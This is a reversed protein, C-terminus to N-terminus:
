QGQGTIYNIIGGAIGEAAKQRFEETMLLKLDNKNTMFAVEVLASPMRTERTVVLGPREVIGRDPLGLSQVVAKQIAMALAKKEPAPYYLTETGSTDPKESANNHISVFLDAGVENAIGARTYLNVFIDKDRTMLVKAGGDELLKKLRLAIDLNLDKEQVGGAGAGPDSGGHGPDVVIIKNQLPSKYIILEIRSSPPATLLQYGTFRNLNIVVQLNYNKLDKVRSLEIYDIVGDYVDIKDNKLLSQDVAVGPIVIRLQKKAVDEKIEYGIEGSATIEVATRYNESKVDLDEVTQPGSFVVSIVNKEQFVQYNVDSKLDFVVRVTDPNVSFQGLRIDKVFDNEPLEPTKASLVAGKVDLVLRDPDALFFYNVEAPKVTFIKAAVKEDRDDIEVKHLMNNFSIIISKKDESRSIQFTADPKIELVVRSLPPEEQLSEIVATEMFEDYIYLAGDSTALQAKVEVALRNQSEEQKAEYELPSDGRIVVSNRGGIVEYSFDVIRASIRTIIVRKADNDWSVKAGLAEGIFRLPVMTRNNVIKAPVDLTIERGDVRARSDNIKLLITKSPAKVTVTKKVNDWLVEAGLNESVVRLPVLTRGNVMVPAVDANIKKENIYIEVPKPAAKAHSPIFFLFTALFILAIRKLM